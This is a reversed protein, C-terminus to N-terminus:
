NLRGGDTQYVLLGTAPNVIATRQVATMRPVLLGKTTSKVDLIASNDPLAGDQNIAINQSFSSDCIIYSLICLFYKKM